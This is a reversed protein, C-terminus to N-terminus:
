AESPATGARVGQLNARATRATAPIAGLFAMALVSEIHGPYLPNMNWWVILLVLGATSFELSKGLPAFTDWLFAGAVLLGVGIPLAIMWSPPVAAAWTPHRQAQNQDTM